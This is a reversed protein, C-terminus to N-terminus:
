ESEKSDIEDCVAVAEDVASELKDLLSKLENYEGLTITVRQATVSNASTFKGRLLRKIDRIESRLRLRSSIGKALRLVHRSEERAERLLMLHESVNM